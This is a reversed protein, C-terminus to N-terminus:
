LVFFYVYLLILSPFVLLWFILFRKMLKRIYKDREIEEELTMNEKKPIGEDFTDYFGNYFYRLVLLWLLIAIAVTLINQDLWNVQFFFTNYIDRLTM